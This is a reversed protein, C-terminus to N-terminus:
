TENNRQSFWEYQGGSQMGVAVACEENTGNKSWKEYCVLQDNIWFWLGLTSSYRLGLWVFPSSANKAKDQVRGQEQPNTISVLSRYFTRCYDLAEEWTKNEKILILKDTNNNLGIWAEGQNQTSNPLRSMDTMDFVKALDTYKERCYRQAEYWSKNEEIFHYEYLRCTFFCCQGM